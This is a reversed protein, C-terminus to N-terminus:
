AMFCTIKLQLSDDYDLFIMFDQHLRQQASSAFRPPIVDRFSCCVKWHLSRCASHKVFCRKNVQTQFKVNFSINNCDKAYQLM